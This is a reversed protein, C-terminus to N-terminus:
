GEGRGRNVQRRSLLSKLKWYKRRIGRYNKCFSKLKQLMVEMGSQETFVQSLDTIEQELLAFPANYRLVAWEARLTCLLANEEYYRVEQNRQYISTLVQKLDHWADERADKSIGHREDFFPNVWGIFYRIQKKSLRINLNRNLTAAVIEGQQVILREKKTSTISKGDERYYGLVEPLNTIEGYDLARTWLEFDEAAYDTRYFLANRLFVEKRLMLTSHCLDCRFLLNARCQEPSAPPAHLYTSRDFYQQWGGCVAVGPHTDMFTLQKAIRESIMLDDADIRAIYEGSAQLMGYNLAAALGKRPGTLVKIRPDSFGHIIELTGDTSGDDIVLLEFDQQTQAFISELTQRLYKEAQFTPLLVTVRPM